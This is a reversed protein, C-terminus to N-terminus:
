SSSALSPPPLSTHLHLTNVSTDRLMAVHMMAHMEHMVVHLRCYRAAHDATILTLKYEYCWVQERYAVCWVDVSYMRHYTVFIINNYLTTNTTEPRSPPGSLASVAMVAYSHRSSPQLINM